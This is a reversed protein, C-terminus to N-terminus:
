VLFTQFAILGSSAFVMGVGIIARLTPEEGLFILGLGYSFTISLSRILLGPGGKCYQLGRNMFAQSSFGCAGALVACLFGMSNKMVYLSLQFKTIGVALILMSTSLSLGNIMFHVRRGMARTVTAAAANFFAGTLGLLAGIPSTNSASLHIFSPNSILLIGLISFLLSLLHIPFISENLFVACLVLTIAPNSFFITVADGVPLVELSFLLFIIGLSGFIGRSVLSVLLPRSLTFLTPFIDSYFSLYITALLIEVLARVLIVTPAPYDYQTQSVHAFFSMLAHCLASVLMLSYGSFIPPPSPASLLPLTPSKQTSPYTM